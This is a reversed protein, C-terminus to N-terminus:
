RAAAGRVRDRRHDPVYALAATSAGDPVSADQSGGGSGSARAAGDRRAAGAAAGRTAPRAAAAVVDPMAPRAAAAGVDPMALRVRRSARRFRGRGRGRGRSGDHGREGRRCRRGHGRGWARLVQRAGAPARRAAAPRDPEEEAPRAATGRARTAVRAARWNRAHGPRRRLAGACGVGLVFSLAVGALLRFPDCSFPSKTVRVPSSM